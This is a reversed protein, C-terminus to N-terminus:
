KHNELESLLNEARSNMEKNSSEEVIKNCIRVVDQHSYKHNKKGRGPTRVGAKKAYTNLTTNGIDLINLLSAITYPQIDNTPPGPVGSQTEKWTNLEFDLQKQISRFEVKLKLDSYENDPLGRQVRTLITDFWTKIVIDPIPYIDLNDVKPTKKLFMFPDAYTINGEKKHRQYAGQLVIIISSGLERVFEFAAELFSMGVSTFVKINADPREPWKPLLEKISQVDKYTNAFEMLKICDFLQRNGMEYKTKRLYILGWKDADSINFRSIYILGSSHVLAAKIADYVSTSMKKPPLKIDFLCDKAAKRYDGLTKLGQENKM